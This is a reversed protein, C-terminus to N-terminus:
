RSSDVSVTAQLMCVKADLCLRDGIGRFGGVGNALMEVRKGTREKAEQPLLNTVNGNGLGLYVTPKTFSYPAAAVSYWWNKAAASLKAAIQSAEPESM